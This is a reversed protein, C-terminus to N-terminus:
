VKGSELQTVKLLSLMSKRQALTVTCSDQSSVTPHSPPLCTPPARNIQINTWVSERGRLGACPWPCVRVNEREIISREVTARMEVGMPQAM